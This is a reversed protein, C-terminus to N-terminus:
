DHSKRRIIENLDLINKITFHIDEGKVSCTGRGQEVHVACFGKEKVGALDRDLRDGVVVVSEPSVHQTLKQYAPMKDDDVVVIESFISNDLGSKKIKSTQLEKHGRTVLALTHKQSLKQLFDLVNEDLSVEEELPSEYMEKIGVEAVGDKAKHKVCTREIVEKSSEATLNMQLMDLLVKERSNSLVLGAQVMKELARQLRGPTIKATTAILTDDLDFIIFM